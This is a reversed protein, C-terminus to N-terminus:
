PNEKLKYEAVKKILGIVPAVLIRFESAYYEVDSAVYCYNPPGELPRKQADMAAPILYHRGIFKGSKDIAPGFAVVIGHAIENRREGFHKWPNNALTKIEDYFKISRRYSFAESVTKLMQIRGEFTRVSGFSRVAMEVDSGQQMLFGFLVGLNAEFLGFETMARGVATFLADPTEDGEPQVSRRDWPKLQKTENSM